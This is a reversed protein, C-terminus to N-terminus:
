LPAPPGQEFAEVAQRWDLTEQFQFQPRFPPPASAALSRLQRLMQHADRRKQDVYGEPLWDRLAAIQADPIGSRAAHDLLEKWTREKYFMGKALRLIAEGTDSTLVGASVARDITARINVMAESLPPYDLEAPGHVVAVEDDDEIAGSRYAEFIAGIGAMGFTCLEAARLAGMSAAGCVHVGRSLAFLIEKHWVAPVNEFFGDILGIAVPARLAARYIDGHAAPPLFTFTADSRVADGSLTPGAFILIAM